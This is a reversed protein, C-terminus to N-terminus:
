IREPIKKRLSGAKKYFTSAETDRKLKELVIALEVMYDPEEPIMELATRLVNEASDPNGMLNFCKGIYFYAPAYDPNAEIVSELFDVAEKYLGNRLKFIGNLFEMDIRSIDKKDAEKEWNASRTKLLQMLESVYAQQVFDSSVEEDAILNENEEYQIEELEDSQIDETMLDEIDMLSEREKIKEKEGAFLAMQRGTLKGKTLHNFMEKQVKSDEVRVIPRLQFESIDDTLLLKQRM